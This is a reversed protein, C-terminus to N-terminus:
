VIQSSLLQFPTGDAKIQWIDGDVTRYRSVNKNVDTIFCTREIVNASKIYLAPQEIARFLGILRCVYFVDEFDPDTKSIVLNLLDNVAASTKMRRAEGLNFLSVDEFDGENIDFPNINIVDEIESQLQTQFVIMGHPECFRKLNTQTLTNSPREPVALLLTMIEMTFTGQIINKVIKPLHAEAQKILVNTKLVEKAYEDLAAVFVNASAFSLIVYVFKMKIFHASM